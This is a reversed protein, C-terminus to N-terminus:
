HFLRKPRKRTAIVMTASTLAILTLLATTWTSFEPVVWVNSSIIQAHMLSMTTYTDTQNLTEQLMEVMVGTSKDWYINMTYNQGGTPYTYNIHNTDRTVLSAYTRPVTENIMLPWSPYISDGPGLGASIILLTLNVSQGNTVNIWGGNTTETGNKYHGTMQGTINSGSIATINLQAWETNNTEVLDSPPTASPDTSSWSVTVSFRFNNGVSVGVTGPQASATVVLTLLQFTSMLNLLVIRNNM